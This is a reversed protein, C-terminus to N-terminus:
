SPEQQKAIAADLAARPTPYEGKQHENRESNYNDMWCLWYSNEGGKKVVCDTQSTLWDLREADLGDVPLSRAAKFIEFAFAIPWDEYGLREDRVLRAYSKDPDMFRRAIEEFAFREADTPTTM